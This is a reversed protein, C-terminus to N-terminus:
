DLDYTLDVTPTSPYSVCTLVFGEEIEEEDLAFCSTMEVNGSKMKAMCTACAGATCSFPADVKHRQLAELISEGKRVDIEYDKGNLRVKASSNTGSAEKTEDEEGPMRISTFVEIHINKSPIELKELAVKTAEMMGGPGCIFYESDKNETPFKSLFDDIKKYDIPGVLGDWDIRKKAFMGMFGGEKLIPPNDVAFQIELQGEFRNLLNDLESKFIISEEDRNGYILFVKSQPEKELVTKLISMLPTVGSGGGFLYYHKKNEEKIETYFRGNAPMVEIEDGAKINDNIHNSVLGGLVRKISVKPDQETAPSSSFSYARRVEKNNLNFKLTLYQGPIYKFTESLAAPIDFVLSVADKTEQIVEKVKLKHFQDSM